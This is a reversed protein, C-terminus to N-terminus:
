AASLIEEYVAVTAAATRSWTYIQARKRGLESLHRREVGNQLLRDMADGMAPVDYPDVLRAGDGLVEPMASVNSAMVPIGRRMAELPPFGFGEHLSPYVFLSANGYLRDLEVDDVHGPCSVDDKLGLEGIKELVRDRNLFDKGALVLRAGLKTRSETAAFAELLRELNKRVHFRGVYLVIPPGGSHRKTESTGGGGRMAAVHDTGYPIVRLKEPDVDYFELLERRTAETPVLVRAARSVGAKLLWRVRRSVAPRFLEPHVDTSVDHVTLVIPGVPCWPPCAFTAHLLDVRHLLTSWPLGIPIFYWRSDWLSSHTRVRTEARRGFAREGSATLFIRYDHGNGQRVVHDILERAYREPGGVQQGIWESSIGIRRRM